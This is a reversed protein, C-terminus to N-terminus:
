VGQLPLVVATAVNLGYSRHEPNVLDNVRNISSPTWTVLISIAFIFSTRLYALKVPDLGKLRSGLRARGFRMRESM